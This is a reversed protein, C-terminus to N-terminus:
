TVARLRGINQDGEVQAPDPRAQASIRLEEIGSKLTANWYDFQLQTAHEQEQRRTELQQLQVQTEFLQNQLQEQKEAEAQAAESKQQLAAQAQESRPDILYRSPQDIGGAAAWDLLTDHYTALDVLVDDFGAQALKEQQMVIGELAQRRQLREGASMGAVIRVQDRPIWQEPEFNVFESGVMISQQGPMHERLADHILVFMSRILTQGITRTILQALQEKSTFQREVGHATEGAVQLDAAQLDLSAGGRESRIKDMYNLLSQASGGIDPVILAKASETTDARIIGGPRSNIADDLNVAGDVVILRANNAADHNDIYNRLTETKIAEVEALKDHLGLGQWRHPQLFGTGCAYPVFPFLENELVASEADAASGGSAYIIKRREAVGDGDFDVRPYLEFIEVRQQSKDSTDWRAGSQKRDRSSSQEHDDNSIAPLGMVIKKPYGMQLLDSRTWFHRQGVFGVNDLFISTYEEEILFQTPDVAEIVLRRLHTTRRVTLSILEDKGIEVNLTEVDQDPANAATADDLELPDLDKYRQTSVHVRTEVAVKVIANRLLLADRLAEQLVTYGQNRDKLYANCVRSEIRVQQVDEPGIPTFVAVEDFDLAPMIQAVVAEVMDAVDSSIANSRGAIVTGRARGYYSDLARRQSAATETGTSWDSQQIGEDLVRRLEAATMNAM